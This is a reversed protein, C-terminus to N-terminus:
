ILPEIRHLSQNKAALEWLELLESQHQSTWEIVMGLARPPLEGQIIALARIDIQAM